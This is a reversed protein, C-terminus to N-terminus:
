RETGVLAGARVQYTECAGLLLADRMAVADDMSGVMSMVVILHPPSSESGLSRKVELIADRKNRRIQSLNNRREEKKQSVRKKITGQKGEVRGRSNNELTRKSLHRSKHSKNKQKLSGPEHRAPESM